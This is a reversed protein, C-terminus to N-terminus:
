CIWGKCGDIAGTFPLRRLKIAWPDAKHDAGRPGALAWSFAGEFEVRNGNLKWEFEV